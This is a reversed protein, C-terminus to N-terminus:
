GALAFWLVHALACATQAILWWRRRSIGFCLAPLLLVPFYGLSIWFTHWLTDACRLAGYPLSLLPSHSMDLGIVKGLTACFVLVSIALLYAALALGSRLSAEKANPGDM